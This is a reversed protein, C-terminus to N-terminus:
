KTNSHLSQKTQNPGPPTKQTQKQQQKEGEKFRALRLLSPPSHNSPWLLFPLHKFRFQAACYTGLLLQCSPTNLGLAYTSDRFSTESVLKQKRESSAQKYKKTHTIWSHIHGQSSLPESGASANSLYGACVRCSEPREPGEGPSLAGLAFAATRSGLDPASNKM